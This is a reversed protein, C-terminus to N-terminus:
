PTATAVTQRQSLIAAALALDDAETVKINQRAGFVLRVQYGFARVLGADDTAPYPFPAAADHVAQLVSRRFAQPTQVAAVGLRNVSEGVLFIESAPAYSEARSARVLTDPIRATLTAAEIPYPAGTAQAAALTEAILEPTVCPRAADHVAVWEVAQPLAHLGARVSERRDKGGEVVARVKGGGYADAIAQLRALEPESGVIVVGDIADCLAFAEM